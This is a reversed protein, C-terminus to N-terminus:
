INVGMGILFYKRNQFMRRLCLTSSSKSNITQLWTYGERSVEVQGLLRDELAIGDRGEQLPVTLLQQAM